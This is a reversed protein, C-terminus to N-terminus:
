FSIELAKLQDLSPLLHDLRGQHDVALANKEDTIGVYKCKIVSYIHYLNM